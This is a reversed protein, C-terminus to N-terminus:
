PGTNGVSVEFTKGRLSFRVRNGQIDEVRAGEILSGVSVSMGNVIAKRKEGDSLAIGNVTLSPLPATSAPTRPIKPIRSIGPPQQGHQEPTLAKRSLPEAPTIVSYRLPPVARTAPTPQQQAQLPPAPASSRNALPIIVPIITTAAKFVSQRAQLAASRSSDPAKEASTMVLYTAASGCAVLLGMILAGKLPSRRSAPPTSELFELDVDVSGPKRSAKEHELKKLARLITSM